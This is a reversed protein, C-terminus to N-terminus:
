NRKSRTLLARWHAALALHRAYAGHNFRMPCTACPYDKTWFPEFWFNVAVNRELADVETPASIVEHWWFAPMYLADGSRVECRVERLRAKQLSEGLKANIENDEELLEFLSSDDLQVPSMVLALSEQLQAASRRFKVAKDSATNIEMQAEQLYGEGFAENDHPHYMRLTKTGQLVTLVNEFADFHLKGITHGGSIWVNKHRLNQEGLVSLVADYVPADKLVNAFQRLSTYELYYSADVDNLRSLFEDFSLDLSAARVVVLEPHNLHKKVMDPISPSENTWRSMSEVGEFWGMGSDTRHGVKVHVTDNGFVRLDHWKQMAPWVQAANRVVFPAGQAVRSAFVTPSPWEDFEDCWDFLENEEIQQITPSEFRLNKLREFREEAVFNQREASRLMEHRQKRIFRGLESVTGSNTRHTQCAENVTELPTAELVRCSASRTQPTLLCQPVVSVREFVCVEADEDLKDRHLSVHEEDAFIRQLRKFEDQAIAFESFVVDCNENLSLDVNWTPELFAGCRQIGISVALLVSLAFM